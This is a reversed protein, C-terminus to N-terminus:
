DIGDNGHFELEHITVVNDRNGIWTSKVSFRLYRVPELPLYFEHGANAASMDEDTKEGMPAGSPKIIEFDGFLTWDNKWEELWYEDSKGTALATTGWVEFMRPNHHSYLFSEDWRGQWLIFRSLTAEVGLDITFLIPITFGKETAPHNEASHWSMGGTSLKNGDFMRYFYQGSGNVSSNDYQLIILNDSIRQKDMMEEFAPSLTEEKIESLNGWKDRIQVAFKRPTADFGRFSHDGEKMNTFYVSGEDLEGLDDAAFLTVGIEIGLPNDWRINIGGFDPIMTLSKFISVIPPEDPTFTTSAPPSVNTSHDVVYLTIEVPEVSGLGEVTLSNDYVSARIVKPQGQFLFEGKVYSIDTENPPLDYTIKAGGPLAEARVNSLPAPPVSDTPTQGIPSETCSVTCIGAL